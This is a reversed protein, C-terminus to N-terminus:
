LCLSAPTTKARYPMASIEEQLPMMLTFLEALSSIQCRQYIQKRFVKVTQPSINLNLGISESSHGRLILLAVQAQRQTLNIGHRSRFLSIFDAVGALLDQKNSAFKSGDWEWHSKLLAMIISQRELLHSEDGSSFFQGSTSDKGLSVTMTANADVCAVVTLEDTIGIRNYYTEYYETTEFQTKSIDSLRFIGDGGSEKHYLYVPDFLFAGSMYEKYIYRFVNCGSHSHFHLNPAYSNQYTIFIVNDYRVFSRVYACFDNFFDPKGVSLIAQSLNEKENIM